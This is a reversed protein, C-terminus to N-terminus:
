VVGFQKIFMLDLSNIPKVQNNVVLYRYSISLNVLELQNSLVKLLGFVRFYYTKTNILDLLGKQRTNLHESYSTKTKNSTPKALETSKSKQRMKSALQNSSKILRIKHSRQSASYKPVISACYRILHLVGRKKTNSVPIYSDADLYISILSLKKTDCIPKILYVAENLRIAKSKKTGDVPVCSNAIHNM